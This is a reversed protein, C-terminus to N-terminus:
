RTTNLASDCAVNRAGGTLWRRSPGARARAGVCACGGSSPRPKSRCPSGMGRPHWALGGRCDATRSLLRAANTRREGRRRGALSHTLAACSCPSRSKRSSMISIWHLQMTSTRLIGAARLRGAIGADSLGSLFAFTAGTGSTPNCGVAGGSPRGRGVGVRARVRVAHAESCGSRAGSVSAVSQAHADGRSECTGGCLGVTSSTARAACRAATRGDSVLARSCQPRM